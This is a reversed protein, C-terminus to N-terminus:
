PQLVLRDTTEREVAKRSYLLPFCRGANWLQLLDSYHKSGPQGSQGPTNVAVSQDWDSTDLIERYSAGSAQEWSDGDAGTANVTYEDGPRPWPAFDFIDKADPQRDLPHRFHVTHLNGWKWQLTDPGLLKKLEDQAAKLTEALLQDRDAVPNDGVGFLYKEPHALIRQIVNPPLNDYREPHEKSFRKGIAHCTQQFWVEYLAADASVSKLVGDWRLFSVLAPDDKLTTSRIFRQFELAPLSTIDSQLREMDSVTLKRRDHKASEIMSRIRTVRYPPVWEFGVNYPYHEPIMKNNATAVFGEKPNFFHPLESTPVFGTWNNNGSGPVPLLGTWDRVPALGVSHEGINGAIDAYVLNESPVKWRAVASEFQDWNEVRDLALSALYGATGPETGIWRLALARKGDDKDGKDDVWLVPGHRTFKLDVEAAAAGKVLFTERRVEMKKWGDETKYELSNAPNIEEVYLDQQDLGFITFGWAIHENHGLAVGPLGPEGAGIVNWGPAVLHVMYRLSPLGMVRHPDNALLPKGSATLAGSITWNNSGGLSHAPFEIRHDSGVLNKLLEPSLGTLDLQPAPDLAIAPDFDFLKSAKEAGLEALAQAHELENLANGTMSFAAMRNLCDEPHWDDPSFGALQFEIPLGPGGPATLSAIYSNIGDTFATLIAQTDPSYSEYEAQMDGRYRLARANVDRPLASPGLIEALRGQGARKWLEMQFLRDQAAVAGQAFFLDHQNQAYIHAVGWRDRLVNVPRELGPMRLQGSVVALAKHAAKVLDPKQNPQAFVALPFLLILLRISKM